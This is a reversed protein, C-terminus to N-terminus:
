CFVPFIRDYVFIGSLSHTHGHGLKGTDRNGTEMPLWPM